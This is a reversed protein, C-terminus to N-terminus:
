SRSTIPANKANRRHWTKAGVRHSLSRARARRRRVIVILIGSVTLLGFGNRAWAVQRLARQWDAILRQKGIGTIGTVHVLSPTRGPQWQGQVTVVDGVRFGSRGRNGHLVTHHVHRLVPDRKTSPSVVVTGDPVQMVVPPFVQRFTEQFRVERGEAPHEQYIIGDDLHSGSACPGSPCALHSLRGRLMVITAPQLTQLDALRTLEPISQYREFKGAVQSFALHSALFGISLLPMAVLLASSLWTLRRWLRRM